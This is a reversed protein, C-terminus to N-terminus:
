DGDPGADSYRLVDDIHLWRIRSDTWIHYEPAIRNPDDLSALTVDVWEPHQDSRFALQTGCNPCFERQAGPTARFLAPMAGQYSFASGSFTAWALVPAGSARQCLRCHCYGADVPAGVVRYRVQGCLCGGELLEVTM